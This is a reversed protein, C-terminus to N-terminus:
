GWVIVVKIDDRRTCEAAAARIEEQVQTNLANVPARDIRLTAVGNDEVTLSVFDSM